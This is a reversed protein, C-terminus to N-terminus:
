PACSDLNVPGSATALRLGGVRCATAGPCAGAAACAEFCARGAGTSPPQLTGCAGSQCEADSACPDGGRKAGLPLRCRRVLASRPQAPDLDPACVAPSTPGGDVGGDGGACDASTACPAGSCWSASAVVDDATGPLGDPGRSVLVATPQCTTPLAAGGDADCQASATCAEACLGARRVGRGDDVQCYGSRCESGLVCPAGALKRGPTATCNQKVGTSLVRLKCVVGADYAGCADTSDCGPRCGRVTGLTGFPTTFDFTGECTGTRGGVACDSDAACAAYCFYAPTVALPDARCSGSQCARDAPM